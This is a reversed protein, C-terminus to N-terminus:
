HYCSYDCRKQENLNDAGQLKVALCHHVQCNDCTKGDPKSRRKSWDTLRKRRYHYLGLHILAEKIKNIKQAYIDYGSHQCKTEYTNEKSGSFFYFRRRALDCRCIFTM